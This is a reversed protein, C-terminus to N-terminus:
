MHLVKGCFRHYDQRTCDNQQMSSHRVMMVVTRVLYPKNKLGFDVTMAAMLMVLVVITVLMVGVMRKIQASEGVHKRVQHQVAFFVLLQQSHNDLCLHM